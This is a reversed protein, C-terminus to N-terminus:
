LCVGIIYSVGFARNDVESEGSLSVKNRRKIAFTNNEKDISFIHEYFAVEYPETDSINFQHNSIDAGHLYKLAVMQEASITGGPANYKVIIFDFEDFKFRVGRSDDVSLPISVGLDTTRTDGQWIIRQYSQGRWDGVVVEDDEFDVIRSVEYFNGNTTSTRTFKQFIIKGNNNSPSVFLWGGGDPQPHDIYNKADSTTLYYWGPKRIDSLRNTTTDRNFARGNPMFLENQRNQIALFQTALTGMGLMYIMHRRRLTQDKMTIMLLVKDKHNDVLYIGEPEYFDNIGEGCNIQRQQTIEGTRWDFITLVDPYNVANTDGTRWYFHDEDLTFGQLYSLDNPISFISLPEDIGRKVDELLRIQIEQEKRIAMYQYNSDIACVVYDPHNFSDYRKADSVSVTRNPRWSIKYLGYGTKDECDIHSWSTWIYVQGNDVELGFNTGHGGYKFIMYDILNGNKDTRNIVFSEEVAEWEDVTPVYIQSIYYEQNENDYALGQGVTTKHCSLQTLYSEKLVSLDFTEKKNKLEEIEKLTAEIQQTLEGFLQENIVKSLTGDQEWKDLTDKIINALGESTAWELFTPISNVLEVCENIKTFFVCLLEQLTYEDYDYISYQVGDRAFQETLAEIKEKRIIVEDANLLM